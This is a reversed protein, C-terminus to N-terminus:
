LEDTFKNIHVVREIYREFKTYFDGPFKKEIGHHHVTNFSKGM